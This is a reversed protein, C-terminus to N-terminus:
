GSSLEGNSESCPAIPSPMGNRSPAPDALTVRWREDGTVHLSVRPAFEHGASVETNYISGNIVFLHWGETTSPYTHPRVQPIVTTDEFVLHSEADTADVVCLKVLPEVPSKYIASRPLGGDTPFWNILYWLVEERIVEECPLGEEIEFAFPTPQDLEQVTKSELTSWCNGRPDRLVVFASTGTDDQGQEWLLDGCVMAPGVSGRAAEDLQVQGLRLCPDAHNKLIHLESTGEPTYEPEVSESECNPDSRLCFELGKVYIDGGILRGDTGLRAHDDWEIECTTEDSAPLPTGERPVAIVQLEYNRDRVTKGKDLVSGKLRIAVQPPEEYEQYDNSNILYMTWYDTEDDSSTGHAAALRPKKGDFIVTGDKRVCYQDVPEIHVHSHDAIAEDFVVIQPAYKAPRVPEHGHDLLLRNFEISGCPTGGSFLPFQVPGATRALHRHEWCHGSPDRLILALSKPVDGTDPWTVSARLHLPLPSVEEVGEGPQVRFLISYVVGHAAGFTKLEVPWTEQRFYTLDEREFAAWYGSYGLISLFVLFIATAALHWLRVRPIAELQAAFTVVQPAQEPTVTFTINLIKDKGLWRRRTPKALIAVELTEQPPVRAPNPRILFECSDDPTEGQLSFSLDANGTNSITNTFKGEAGKVRSPHLDHFFSYVPLVVLQGSISVHEGPYFQSSVEVSFEYTGAITNPEDPPHLELVVTARDGPFVSFSRESLSPWSPRLGTVEITYVDLIHGTNEVEVM